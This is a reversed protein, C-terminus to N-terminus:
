SFDVIGAPVGGCIHVLQSALYLTLGGLWDLFEAADQFDKKFSTVGGKSSLINMAFHAKELPLLSDFSLQAGFDSSETSLTRVVREIERASQTFHWHPQAHDSNPDTVVTYDWEARLIPYLGGAPYTQFLPLSVHDLIQANMNEGHQTVGFRLVLGFYFVGPSVGLTKVPCVNREDHRVTGAELSEQLAIHFPGVQKDAKRNLWLFKQGFHMQVAQEVESILKASYEIM